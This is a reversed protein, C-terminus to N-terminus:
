VNRQRRMPRSMVRYQINHIDRSFELNDQPHEYPLKIIMNWLAASKDLIKQEMDTLQLDTHVEDEKLKKPDGTGQECM